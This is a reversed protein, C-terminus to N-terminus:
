FQTFLFVLEHSTIVHKGKIKDFQMEDVFNNLHFGTEYNIGGNEDYKM